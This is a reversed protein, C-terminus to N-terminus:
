CFNVRANEAGSSDNYYKKVHTLPRATKNEVM